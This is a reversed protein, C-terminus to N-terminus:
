NGPKIALCQVVSGRGTHFRGELVDRELEALYQFELAALEERVSQLTQMTDPDKGGGTDNM